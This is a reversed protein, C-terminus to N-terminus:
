FFKKIGFIICLLIILIIVSILFIKIAFIIYLASTLSTVLIVITLVLHVEIDAINGKDLNKEYEVSFFDYIDENKCYQNITEFKARNINRYISIMRKWKFFAIWLFINIILLILLCILLKDSKVFLFTIVTVFYSLISKLLLNFIFKNSNMRALSIENTSKIFYEFYKEEM